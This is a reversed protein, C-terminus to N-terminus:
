AGMACVLSAAALELGVKLAMAEVENLPADRGGDDLEDNGEVDDDDDVGDLEM